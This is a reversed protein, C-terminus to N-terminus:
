SHSILLNIEINRAGNIVMIRLMHTLFKIITHKQAEESSNM